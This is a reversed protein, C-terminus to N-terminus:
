VGSNDENIMPQVGGDKASNRGRDSLGAFAAAAAAVAVAAMATWAIHYGLPTGTGGRVASLVLALAALSVVAGAARATVSMSTGSALQAAPVGRVVAASLSTVLLGM